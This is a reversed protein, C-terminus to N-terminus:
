HQIAETFYFGSPHYAPWKIMEKLKMINIMVAQYITYVPVVVSVFNFIMTYFMLAVGFWYQQFVKVLLFQFFIFIFMVILYFLLSCGDQKETFM